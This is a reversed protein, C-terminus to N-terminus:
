PADGSAGKGELAKAENWLEEMRERIKPDTRALSLQDGLCDELHRFRARFKRNALALAREADVGLKRGLSVIAFLADGLEEELKEGGTAMADAIEELEERAKDLAGSPEPWDFGVGSAKEGLRRAAVLSPLTHQVGDLLSGRQRASLKRREWAAHVAEATELREEGFVHPHRHVMKDHVGHAADALTFAGLEEALVALFAVQFLLDGLEERIAPWDSSDLAAALEHTEELLFSRLDPPTVKRDWPCGDPARLRRILGLLTTLAADSAREQPAPSTRAADAISKNRDM